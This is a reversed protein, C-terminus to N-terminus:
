AARGNRTSEFAVVSASNRIARRAAQSLSDLGYHIRIRELDELDSRYLALSQKKARDEVPLTKLRSEM